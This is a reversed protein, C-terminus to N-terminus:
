LINSHVREAAAQDSQYGGHHRSDARFSREILVTEGLEDLAKLIPEPNPKRRETDGGCVTTDFLGMWAGEEVFQEWQGEELIQEQHSLLDGSEHFNFCM